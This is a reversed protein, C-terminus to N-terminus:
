SGQLLAGPAQSVSGDSRLSVIGTGQAQIVEFGVTSFWAVNGRAAVLDIQSAANRPNRLEIGGGDASGGRDRVTLLGVEIPGLLQQQM